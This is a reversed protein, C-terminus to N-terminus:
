AKERDKRWAVGRRVTRRESATLRGVSRTRRPNGSDFLGHRRAVTRSVARLLRRLDSDRLGHHAGADPKRVLVARAALFEDRDIVHDGYYDIALQRLAAAKDGVGLKPASNSQNVTSRSGTPSSISCGPKWHCTTHGSRTGPAKSGPM